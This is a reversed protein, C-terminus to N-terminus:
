PKPIPKIPIITSAINSSLVSIPNGKYTAVVLKGTKTMLESTEIPIPVKGAAQEFTVEVTNIWSRNAPLFAGWTVLQAEPSSKLRLALNKPTLLIAGKPVLTMASGFCLVESTNILQQPDGKAAPDPAVPPIYTTGSSKQQAQKLKLVLENESPTDTVPARKRSEGARAAFVGVSCM